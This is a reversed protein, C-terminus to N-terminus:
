TRPTGAPPLQGPHLPPQGRGPLAGVVSVPTDTNEPPNDYYSLEQPPPVLDPAADPAIDQPPTLMQKESPVVRPDTVTKTGAGSLEALRDSIASLVAPAVDDADEMALFRLRQLISPVEIKAIQAKARKPASVLVAALEADDVTQDQESPLRGFSESVGEVLHAPALMGNTFPDLPARVCRNQNLERDAPTIRITGAGKITAPNEEGRDNTRMIGITSQTRSVWEELPEIDDRM